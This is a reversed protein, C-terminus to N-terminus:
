EPFMGVICSNM